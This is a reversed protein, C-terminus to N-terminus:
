RGERRRRELFTALRQDVTTVHRRLWDSLWNHLTLAVLPTPGKREYDKVLESFEKRFAEHAARHVDLEPYSAEAMLREEDAFHEVVYSGLFEFLPEVEAREGRALAEVLSEFRRFLEQHQRDIVDHGLELAPSWRTSM